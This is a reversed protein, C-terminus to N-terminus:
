TQVRRVSQVKRHLRDPDLHVNHTSLGKGIGRKGQCAPKASGVGMKEVDITKIYSNPFDKGNEKFGSEEYLRSREPQEHAM